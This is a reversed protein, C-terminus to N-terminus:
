SLVSMAMIMATEQMIDNNYYKAYLPMDRNDIDKDNKTFDLAQSLKTITYKDDSPMMPKGHYNKWQGDGVPVDFYGVTMSLLYKNTSTLEFTQQAIGKGYTPSGIVVAENCYYKIAGLLAESASASNENVLVVLKYDPNNLGLWNNGEASYISTENTKNSKLRIIGLGNSKGKDDHILYSAIVSLINTSGGGNDRLDLILKKNNNSKYQNCCQVFDEAATGTFSNLKIYGINNGLDLYSAEKTNFLSKRLIFKAEKGNTKRVVLEISNYNTAKGLFDASNLMDNTLGEVSKGDVSVLLDGRELKVKESTGIVTGVASEAPSLLGAESSHSIERIIHNNYSDSQISLGFQWTLAASTYSLGSFQDMTNALGISAWKNFDDKSIDQYYYKKILTYVENAVALEDKINSNYASNKGSIYCGVMGGIILALVLVGLVIITVIKVNYNTNRRNKSDANHPNNDNHFTYM